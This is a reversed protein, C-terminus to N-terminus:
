YGRCVRNIDGGKGEFELDFALGNEPVTQKQEQKDSQSEVSRGNWDATSRSKGKGKDRMVVDDFTELSRVQVVRGKRQLLRDSAKCEGWGREWHMGSETGSSCDTMTMRQFIM